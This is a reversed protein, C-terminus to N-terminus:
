YGRGYGGPNGNGGQQGYGQQYGGAPYGGGFGAGGQSNLDAFIHLHLPTSVKTAAMVVKVIARNVVLLVLKVEM